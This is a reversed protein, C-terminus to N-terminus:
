ETIEKIINGLARIMNQNLAYTQEVDRKNLLVGFQTMATPVGSKKLWSQEDECAKVGLPQLGTALAYEQEMIAALEVNGFEPIFYELNCVTVVDMGQSEELSMGIVMDAHVRNAFDIVEEESYKEQMATTSYIKVKYDQQLKLINKNWEELLLYSRDDWPTHVVIVKEYQERLPMFSVTLVGNEYSAEYVGPKKYYVEIAIDNEHKYVGVAETWASDSTLVAGEEIYSSGDALTIVLKDQTFEEAFSIREKQIPTTFPVVLKAGPEDVIKVPFNRKSLYSIPSSGQGTLAAGVVVAIRGHSDLYDEFHKFGAVLCISLLAFLMAAIVTGRYLRDRKQIM